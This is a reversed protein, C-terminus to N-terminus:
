HPIHWGIGEYRWISDPYTAMVTDRELASATYFHGQKMDSWFRYVPTSSTIASPYAYYAIGEYNWIYPDYQAIVADREATSATYFHHKKSTSWFRYIPTADARQQTFASFAVGEYRWISDPYTAIVADRETISATYFHGQMTDSWFRYIPTTTACTEVPVTGAQAARLATSLNLRRNCAVSNALSAPHDSGALIIARVTVPSLSTNHGFLMAATASVFATAYSTGDGTYYTNDEITGVVGVGPAAIDVSTGYNSFSARTDNKASAGVCIINPLDYNCPYQPTSDVNDGIKDDGGNGAATIVLGHFGAIADHESKAYDSGGFSANIVKVGHAKAFAIAKLESALSLDFRLAMIKNTNYRSMGALGLANHTRAAFISATMSGHGRFDPDTSTDLPDNDGDAFDWGYKPCTADTTPDCGTATWMAGILEPNNYFIGSDIFAVTTPAATSREIDWANTSGISQQHYWQYGATFYPDNPVFALTKIYNPEAYAVDDNTALRTLLTATDAHETTVVIINLDDFTHRIRLDDTKTATKLTSLIKSNTRATLEREPAHTGIEKRAATHFKKVTTDKMRVIVDGDRYTTIPATHALPRQALSKTAHVPAYFTLAACITVAVLLFSHHHSTHLIRLFFRSTRQLSHQLM